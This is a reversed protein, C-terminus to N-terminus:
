SKHTDMLATFQAFLYHSDHPGPSAEPHYQVCFIPLKKHRFGEVTQDYLNVHTLQLDKPLSKSSVAFGHNQSTIEIKGTELNKVPHNAGHHGFKLKYTEAGFALSLLQHGLCIGFIPIKRGALKPNIFIKLTEIAYSVAEPDGPGNSLFIGDPNMALVEDASTSAPVVTVACESSLLLRLINEKIGYDYAVVHYKVNPPEVKRISKRTVVSALDQGNMKPIAKARSALAAVNSDLSLVGQMAGERQLMRVLRRTDIGTIGMVGYSKLYDDLSFDADFNSYTESLEGVILGAAWIKESEVDHRNAGYNGILPYTMCIIQGTYSADTLIEQYGTHSTNFVVEGQSVSSHGFPEGEFTAGNELVLFARM